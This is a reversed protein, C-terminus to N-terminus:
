FDGLDAFVADYWCSFSDYENWTSLVQLWQSFQILSLFRMLHCHSVYMCARGGGLFTMRLDTPFWGRSWRLSHNSWVWLNAYVGPIRAAIVSEPLPQLWREPKWEYSDPGWIEPDHNSALVSIIIDTGRQIPIETVEKGDLGKIPTGLPLLVDQRASHNCLYLLRLDLVLSTPFEREWYRLLLHIDICLSTLRNIVSQFFDM